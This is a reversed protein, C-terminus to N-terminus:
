PTGGAVEGEASGAPARLTVVAALGHEGAPRLEFRGGAATVLEHCIALGLGTGAVNQHRPSRWFRNLAATREAEDLGTGDDTVELRVWETGSAPTAVEESSLDALETPERVRRARVTVWSAGSLRVANGVLEDLVGGLGGPPELAGLGRGPDVELRIGAQRAQVRWGPEHTAFLDDLAVPEADTASDLRTAALMADLLRGLAAAEDVAVRQAERADDDRLHPELNEVALRLSALPNRMQHSADSVFARQRELATGVVGVMTNFSAALRRLEPPGTVEDARTDLRGRAVAATAEDLQRVPRLVWRSIPWAALVLGGLPVLGVLGLLLWQWGIEARLGGTPSAMAVVAVVESDRGVPEVVHLPRAQWPWLLAPPEPRYGAFAQRLQGSLDDGDIEDAAPWADRSSLLVEGGPALVAVPIGYLDDYRAIEDRLAEIRGSSLASEALSAFRGVDSLRDLYVEQTVRQAVVAGLPVGLAAMLVVLLPVLVALLRRLM